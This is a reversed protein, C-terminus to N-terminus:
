SQRSEDISRSFPQLDILVNRINSSITSTNSSSSNDVTHIELVQMTSLCLPSFLLLFGYSSQMSLSKQSSHIVLMALQCVWLQVKPFEDDRRANWSEM